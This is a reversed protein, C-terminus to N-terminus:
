INSSLSVRITVTATPLAQHAVPSVGPSSHEQLAEHKESQFFKNQSITTDVSVMCWSGRVLRPFMKWQGGRQREGLFVPLERAGAQWGM